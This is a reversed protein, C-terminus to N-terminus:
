WFHNIVRVRLEQFKSDSKLSGIDYFGYFIVYIIVNELDYRINFEINLDLNSSSNKLYSRITCELQQSHSNNVREFTFSCHLLHNRGNWIHNLPIDQCTVNYKCNFADPNIKDIHLSLSENSNSILFPDSTALIVGGIKREDRLVEQLAWNLNDIIYIRLNFEKNTLSTSCFTVLRYFKSAKNKILNKTEGTLAYRGLKNTM